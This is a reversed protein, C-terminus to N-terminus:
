VQSQAWPLTKGTILMHDAGKLSRYESPTIGAFRKFERIAHSEDYYEYGARGDAASLLPHRDVLQREFRMLSLFAKPGMGYTTNFRQRLRRPRVDLIRSMAEVSRISGARAMSGIMSTPGDSDECPEVSRIAEVCLAVRDVFSNAVRLRDHLDSPLKSVLQDSDVTQNWCDGFCTGLLDRMGQPTLQVLFWDVVPGGAQWYIESRPGLLFEQSARVLLGERGTWIPDGFNFFLEARGIPFIPFAARATEDRRGAFSEVM